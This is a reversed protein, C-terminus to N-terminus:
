HQIQGVSTDKKECKQLVIEALTRYAGSEPLGTRRVTEVAEEFLGAERLFEAYIIDSEVPFADVLGRVVTRFEELEEPAPEGYVADGRQFEDNYAWLYELMLNNRQKGKLKSGLEAWAERLEPYSLRGREGSCGDGERSKATEYMFYQGCHPCKQVWSVHPLMPYSTKLDWWQKGGFTNGSLLTMLEKEKKCHPCKVILANGPLM